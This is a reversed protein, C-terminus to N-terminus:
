NLIHAFFNIIWSFRLYSGFFFYKSKIRLVGACQCTRLGKWEFKKSLGAARNADQLAFSTYTGGKEGGPALGLISRPAEVAWSVGSAPRGKDCVLALARERKTEVCVHTHSDCLLINLRTVADSIGSRRLSLNGFGLRGKESQSNRANRRDCPRSPQVASSISFPFSLLPFFIFFFGCISKVPRANPHLREPLFLDM